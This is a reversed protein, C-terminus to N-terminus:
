EPIMFSFTYIYSHVFAINSVFYNSFTVIKM